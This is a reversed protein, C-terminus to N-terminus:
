DQRDQIPGKASLRFNRTTHGSPLQAQLGHWELTGTLGPPLTIDATLHASDAASYQAVIDGLPHPYRM